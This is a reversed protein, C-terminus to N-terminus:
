TVADEKRESANVTVREREGEDGATQSWRNGAPVRQRTRPRLAKSWRRTRQENRRKRRLTGPAGMPKDPERERAGREPPPREGSARLATVSARARELVMPLVDFVARSLTLSAAVV